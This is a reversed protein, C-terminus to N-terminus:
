SVCLCSLSACLYEEDTHIKLFGNNLLHIQTFRRLIILGKNLQCLLMADKKNLCCEYYILELPLRNKISIQLGKNHERVRRALDNTFGTYLLGDKKSLLVYVCYM